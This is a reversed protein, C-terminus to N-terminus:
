GSRRPRPLVGALRDSALKQTHEIDNADKVGRALVEARDTAIRQVIGRLRDDGLAIALDIARWLTTVSGKATMSESAVIRVDRRTVPTLPRQKEEEVLMRLAILADMMVSPDDTEGIVQLVARAAPEGFDALATAARPSEGLAGALAPIARPEHLKAVVFALRGIFEPDESPGGTGRRRAAREAGERQLATILADGLEAGISSVDLSKIHGLADNREAHSGNGLLRALGRQDLTPGQALARGGNISLAFACYVVILLLQNTV